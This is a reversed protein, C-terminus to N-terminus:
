GGGQGDSELEDAIEFGSECALNALESRSFLHVYRLAPQDNGAGEAKWDLLTDGEEVDAESLGALEWPMRRTM